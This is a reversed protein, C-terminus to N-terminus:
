WSIRLMKEVAQGFIDTLKVKLKKSPLRCFLGSFLDGFFSIQLLIDCDGASVLQPLIVWATMEWFGSFSNVQFSQRWKTYFFM